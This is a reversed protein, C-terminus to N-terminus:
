ALLPAEIAGVAGVIPLAHVGISKLACRARGPIARSTRWGVSGVRGDSYGKMHIPRM